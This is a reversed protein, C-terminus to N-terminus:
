DLIYFVTDLRILTLGTSMFWLEGAPADSVPFGLWTSECQRVLEMIDGSGPAVLMEVTIDMEAIGVGNEAYIIQGVVEKEGLELLEPAHIGFTAKVTQGNEIIPPLPGSYLLGSIGAAAERAYEKSYTHFEDLPADTGTVVMGVCGTTACGDEAELIQIRKGTLFEDITYAFYGLPPTLTNTQVHYTEDPFRHDFDHQYWRSADLTKEAAAILEEGHQTNLNVDRSNWGIFLPGDVLGERILYEPSADQYRQWIEGNPAGHEDYPPGGFIHEMESHTSGKDVGVLEYYTIFSSIGSDFVVGAFGGYRVATTVAATAGGSTGWSYMQDDYVEFGAGGARMFDIARAMHYYGYHNEPDVPDDPGLGQWADCWDNRPILMAWGRWAAINSIAAAGQLQSSAFTMVNAAQCAYPVEKGSDDGIAGGHHFVLLPLRDDPLVNAPRLLHFSPQRDDYPNPYYDEAEVTVAYEVAVYDLHAFNETEISVEVVGTPLPVDEEGTDIIPVSDSTDGTHASDNSDGTPVSDSSDGPSSPPRQRCGCALANVTSSAFVLTLFVNKSM